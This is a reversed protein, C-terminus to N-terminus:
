RRRHFVGPRYEEFVLFMGVHFHPSTRSLTLKRRNRDLNIITGIVAREIDRLDEGLEM